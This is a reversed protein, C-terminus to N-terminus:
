RNAAEKILKGILALLNDEDIPKPLFGDMGADAFRQQDDPEVYGSIALIPTYVPEGEEIKRIRRSAEFGNMRPMQGDMIILDYKKTAYLDMAILGDSATDVEWGKSRLFGALYLQSIMDDEVVLLRIARGSVYDRAEKDSVTHLDVGLLPISFSLRYARGTHGAFSFSGGMLRILGDAQPALLGDGTEAASMATNQPAKGGLVTPDNVPNAAPEGELVFVIMDDGGELRALETRLSMGAGPALQDRLQHFLSALVKYLVKKDAYVSLPCDSGIEKSIPCDGLHGEPSIRAICHDLYPDLLIEDYILQGSDGPHKGPRINDHDKGPAQDSQHGKDM